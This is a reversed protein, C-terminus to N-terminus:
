PYCHPWLSREGISVAYSATQVAEEANARLSLNPDEGMKIRLNKWTTADFQFLGLYVSNKASPNFGSECIAIARIVNPDVGYQGAFRNTFEYIEASTFTPQPIPTPTPKPTPKKTPTPSPSPTPSPTDTPMSTPSSSSTAEALVKKEENTRNMIYLTVVEGFLVLLLISLIFNKM